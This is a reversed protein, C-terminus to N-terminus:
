LFEKLRGETTFAGPELFRHFEIILAARTPWDKMPITGNFHIDLFAGQRLVISWDFFQRLRETDHDVWLIERVFRRICCAWIVPLDEIGDPMRYGNDAFLQKTILYERPVQAITKIRSLFDLLEQNTPPLPAGLIQQYDIAYDWSPLRGAQRDSDSIKHFAEWHADDTPYPTHENNTNM